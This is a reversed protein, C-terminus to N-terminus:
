KKTAWVGNTDRIDDEYGLPLGQLATTPFTHDPDGIIDGLM